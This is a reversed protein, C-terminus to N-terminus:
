VVMWPKREFRDKVRRYFEDDTLAEARYAVPNPTLTKMTASLRASAELLQARAVRDSKRVVIDGDGEGRELLLRAPDRCDFSYSIRFPPGDWENTLTTAFRLETFLGLRAHLSRRNTWVDIVHRYPADIEPLGSGETDSDAPIHLDGTGHRAYGRASGLSNRRALDADVYALLDCAIKVHMRKSAPRGWEMPTSVGANPDRLETPEDEAPADVIKVRGDRLAEPPLRRQRLMQIMVDVQRGEDAPLAWRRGRDSPAPAEEFMGGDRARFLRGEHEFNTEIATGDGKRADLMGGVPALTEVCPAEIATFSHNCGKCCIKDSVLRGGLAHTFVHAWSKNHPGLADLCYLCIM